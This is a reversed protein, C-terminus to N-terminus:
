LPLHQTDSVFRSREVLIKCALHPVRTQEESPLSVMGTRSRPVYNEPPVAM